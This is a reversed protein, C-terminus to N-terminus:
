LIILKKLINKDAQGGRYNCEVAPRKLNQFPCQVKSFIGSFFCASAQRLYFLIPESENKGSQDTKLWIRCFKVSIQTDRRYM